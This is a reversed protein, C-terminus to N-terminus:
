PLFLQFSFPFERDSEHLVRWERFVPDVRLLFPLQLAMVRSKGTGNNGRLILHGNEYRFEEYDYLYLNLLGGRIPQWRERTACPLGAAGHKPHNNLANRTM